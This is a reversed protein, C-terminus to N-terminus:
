KSRPQAGAGSPRRLENATGSGWTVPEIQDIAQKRTIKGAERGREGLQVGSPIKCNSPSVLKEKDQPVHLAGKPPATPM